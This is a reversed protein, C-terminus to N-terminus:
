GASSGTEVRLYNLMAAALAEAADHHGYRPDVLYEVDGGPKMRALASFWVVDDLRSDDSAHTLPNRAARLNPVATDFVKLAEVIEPPEGFVKVIERAAAQLRGLEYVYYDLDNGPTGTLDIVEEPTGELLRPAKAATTALRERQLRAGVIFRNIANIFRSRARDLDTSIM